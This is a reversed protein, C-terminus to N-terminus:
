TNKTLLIDVYNTFTVIERGKNSLLPYKDFHPIIVEKLDPISRVAYVSMDNPRSYVGGINNFYMKIAELLNKDINNQVINFEAQAQLGWANKIDISLSGTFCGEGDVFGSLWHPNNIIFQTIVNLNSAIFHRLM